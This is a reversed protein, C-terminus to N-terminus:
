LATKEKQADPKKLDRKKSTIFYPIISYFYYVGNEKEKKIVVKIKVFDLIAIFAFFKNENRSEIEQITTTISLIQKAKELFKTRYEIESQVRKRNGSKYLIHRFGKSNFYVSSNLYPCYTQGLKSYAVKLKDDKQKDM